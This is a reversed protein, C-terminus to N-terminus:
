FIGSLQNRPLGLLFRSTSWWRRSTACNRRCCLYCNRLEDKKKEEHTSVRLKIRILPYISEWDEGIVPLNNGKILKENNGGQRFHTELWLTHLWKLIAWLDEHVLASTALGGLRLAVPDGNWLSWRHSLIAKSLFWIHPHRAAFSNRHNRAGLSVWFRVDKVKSKCPECPFSDRAHSM